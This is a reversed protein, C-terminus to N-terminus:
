KNQDKVNKSAIDQCHDEFKDLAYKRIYAFADQFDDDMKRFDEEWQLVQLLVLFDTTQKPTM